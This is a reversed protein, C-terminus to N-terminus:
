PIRPRVVTDRFTTVALACEHQRGKEADRMLKGDSQLLAVQRQADEHLVVDMTDVRSTSSGIALTVALLAEGRLRKLRREDDFECERQRKGFSQGGQRHVATALAGSVRLELMEAPSLNQYKTALDDMDVHKAGRTTKWPVPYSYGGSM